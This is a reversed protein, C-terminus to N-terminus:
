VVGMQRLRVLDGKSYGLCGCLVAENHEGLLPARGQQAPCAGLGMADGPYLYAGAEPHEVQQFSSRAALQENYLLERPSFVASAMLRRHHAERFFEGKQFDRLRPLVMAELEAQHRVRGEETAFRPNDLDPIGLFQAIAKLDGPRLVSIGVYGDRCPHLEYAALPIRQPSSRGVVAGMYTYFNFAYPISWAACEMMSVDVEQGEGTERQHLLAILTALFANQGAMHQVAPVGFTIPERDQDGSISMIGGMASVVLETAHYRSYPGSQGFPTVRTVILRPNLRCLSPWDLGLAELTDPPFGELLIDSDQLLRRLIHRGTSSRIDLTIGLKNTNYFLFAGSREPHPTDGPFPGWTRAIDGRGPPEVKVVEAGYAALLRGCYPGSLGEALEVTRVGWLPLVEEREGARM